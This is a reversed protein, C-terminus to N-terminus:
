GGIAQRTTQMTSSKYDIIAYTPKDFRIKKIMQDAPKLVYKETPGIIVKQEIDGQDTRRQVWLVTGADAEIQLTLTDTYNFYIGGNDWTDTEADYNLFRNEGTLDYIEEIQFRAEEKIVDLLNETKYVNFNINDYSDNLDPIMYRDIDEWGFNYTSLVKATTTFVGSLQGWVVSTEISRVTSAVDEVQIVSCIYNIIIPGTYKLYLNVLSSFAEKIVLPRNKGLSFDKDNIRITILPYKQEAKVAAAIAQYDAIKKNIETIDKGENLAIAREAVLEKIEQEFTYNPYQSIEIAKLESYKYRYGGGISYEVQNKIIDLLNDWDSNLILTPKEGNIESSITYQGKYLGNIQGFLKITNDESFEGFEGIDIIGFQNLNDFTFEAVEYATASFSFIIRGLESKPTLTVNTLVVVINGETPSKYLKYSGDNLFEEVKERFKREIFINDDTLNNNFINKNKKVPDWYNTDEKSDKAYKFEDYKYLPIILEDNFYYGDNEKKFFTQNEEDLNFTILGTVPFEAYYAMGNRSVTAYKSGLTDSKASLVTHKFSSMENDYKLPLQLENYYIYPFEFNVMRENEKEEKLPSTRLGSSNEQQFAYKYKVGSEITYDTYILKYDNKFEKDSYLFYKIDEWTAYNDKESARSLIYNGSLTSVYRLYIQMCGNERSFEDTDDVRLTMNELQTLYTERAQFEYVKATAEYGNISVIQYYVNYNGANELMHKFRVQDTGDASVNHQCWGTDEIKNNLEDYLIFRYKDVAEKDDANFVCSGVILPTLTPELMRASEITDRGLSDNLIKISPERIAKIAMVTSWESFAGQAIQEKKWEAFNNISTYIDNEGFRMQVKYLTGPTWGNALEALTVAVRYSNGKKQLGGGSLNKYIIGDPYMKTNIVSKNNSQTVIKIQIHKVSNISMLNPLSFSIMYESTNYLFAPQSSNLLPPYM